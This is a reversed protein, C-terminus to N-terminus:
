SRFRRRAVGALSLVGTGLLALSSPEPTETILISTTYSTPIGEVTVDFSGLLIEPDSEPGTYLQPGYFQTGGGLDLDVSGAGQSESYATNVFSITVDNYYGTPESSLPSPYQYGTADNYSFYEGPISAIPATNPIVVSVFPANDIYLTLEDAHASAVALTCASLIALSALGPRM